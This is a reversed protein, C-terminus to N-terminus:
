HTGAAAAIDGSTGPPFEEQQRREALLAVVQARLEELERRMDGKTM